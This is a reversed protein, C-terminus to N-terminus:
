GPIAKTLSGMIRETKDEENAGITKNPQHTFLINFQTPGNPFIPYSDRYRQPRLGKLSFMALIDSYEKITDGTLKGKFFLPKDIGEFARKTIEDEWHDGAIEKALEFAQAYDKDRQLWIYHSSYHIEAAEAAVSIRGSRSFAALFKRKKLHRIGKFLPKREIEAKM